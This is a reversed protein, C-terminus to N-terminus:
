ELRSTLIFVSFDGHEDTIAQGLLLPEGSELQISASFIKIFAKSIPIKSTASVVKGSIQTPKKLTVSLSNTAPFDLTMTQYPLREGPPPIIFIRYRGQDLRLPACEENSSGFSAACWTGAYNSRAEIRLPTKKFINELTSSDEQAIRTLQIFAGNVPNGEREFLTGHFAQRLPLTVMDIENSDVDWDDDRYMGYLSDPPAIVALNYSGALLKTSVQGKADTQLQKEIYNTDLNRKLYVRADKILEGQENVAVLSKNFTQNIKDAIISDLHITKGTLESEKLSLKQRIVPLYDHESNPEIVLALNPNNDLSHSLPSSLQVFYNGSSTLKGVSSVLKSDQLIKVTTANIFDPSLPVPLSVQGAVISGENKLTITESREESIQVLLFTPPLDNKGEPNIIIQYKQDAILSLTFYGTSIDVTSSLSNQQGALIATASYSLDDDGKPTAVIDPTLAIIDSIQPSKVSEVNKKFSEHVALTGHYSFLPKIEIQAPIDKTISVNFIQQPLVGAASPDIEIHVYNGISAAENTCDGEACHVTNFTAQSYTKVTPLSDFSCSLIFILLGLAVVKVTITM